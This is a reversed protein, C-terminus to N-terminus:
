RVTIITFEGANDTTVGVGKQGKVIINAGPLPAGDDDIVSGRYIATETAKKVDTTQANAETASMPSFALSLMCIMYAPVHLLKFREFQLTM